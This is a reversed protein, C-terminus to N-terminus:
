YAIILVHAPNLESRTTQSLTVKHIIIHHFPSRFDFITYVESPVLVPLFYYTVVVSDDEAIAISTEQKLRRTM